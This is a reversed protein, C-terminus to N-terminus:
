ALLAFVKNDFTPAFSTVAGTTANFSVLNTRNYTTAGSQVLRFNGGAYLTSGLQALADVSTAAVGGGDVINPTFNAPDDSVVGPQAISGEAPAGGALATFALCGALAATILKKM